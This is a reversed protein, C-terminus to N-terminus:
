DRSRTGLSVHRCDGGGLLSPDIRRPIRPRHIQAYLTVHEEHGRFMKVKLDTGSNHVLEYFSDAIEEDTLDRRCTICHHRLNKTECKGPTQIVSFTPPDVQRGRIIRSIGNMLLFVIELTFMPRMLAIFSVIVSVVGIAVFFVRTPTGLVGEGKQKLLCARSLERSGLQVRFIEPM